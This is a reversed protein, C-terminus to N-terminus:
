SSAIASIEAIPMRLGTSSFVHSVTIVKTEKRIGSRIRALITATDHEEPALSVTDIVAGYYKEFYKWCFLGGSHEHNTALIRDGPKLRLGQAVANMGATTSSTVAMEGVDCGLFKAAVARTREALAEAGNRGYFSVPMAELEEWRKLTEGVTARRCPGLTGTNLYTLGEALLYEGKTGAASAPFSMWLGGAVASTLSGLFTRRAVEPLQM